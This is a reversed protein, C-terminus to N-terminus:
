SISASNDEDVDNEVSDDEGLLHMQDGYANKIETIKLEAVAIRENCFHALKIGREYLRTAGELTLGGSELQHVTQELASLAEEFSKPLDKSVEFQPQLDENM